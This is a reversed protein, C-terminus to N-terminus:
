YIEVWVPFTIHITSNRIKMILIKKLHVSGKDDNMQM